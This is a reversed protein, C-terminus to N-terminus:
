LSQSSLNTLFHLAAPLSIAYAFVVGALALGLSAVAYGLARRVNIHGIAPAAFRYSQYMLVPLVGILGIYICVQIVFTFAGGPTLYVLEQQGKLPATILRVIHDFFPYALAAVAIFVLAVVVLRGQLERLHEAVTM